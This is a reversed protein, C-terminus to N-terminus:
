WKKYLTIGCRITKHTGLDFVQWTPFTNKIWTRTLIEGLQHYVYKARAGLRQDKVMDFHRQEMLEIPWSGTDHQAIICGHKLLPAIKQLTACNVPAIHGADLFVIDYKGLDPITVEQMDGEILTLAHGDKVLQRATNSIVLDISTVQCGAELWVLTSHANQVGFELVHEARIMRCLGFLFDAEDRQIPGLAENNWNDPWKIM